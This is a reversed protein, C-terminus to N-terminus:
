WLGPVRAAQELDLLFRKRPNSSARRCSSSYRAPARVVKSKYLGTLADGDRVITLDGLRTRHVTHEAAVTTTGMM